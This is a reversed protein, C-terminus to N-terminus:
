PKTQILEIVAKLRDIEKRNETFFQGPYPTKQGDAVRENLNKMMEPDINPFGEMTGHENYYDNVSQMFQLREKLHGVNEKLLEIARPDKSKVISNYSM